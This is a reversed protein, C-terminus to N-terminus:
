EIEGKEIVETFSEKTYGGKIGCILSTDENVELKYWYETKGNNNLFIM